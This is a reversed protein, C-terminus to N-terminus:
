FRSGFCSVQSVVQHFGGTCSEAISAPSALMTFPRATSPVPVGFQDRDTKQLRKARSKRMSQARDPRTGTDAEAKPVARAVEIDARAGYTTPDTTSIQPGLGLAAVQM